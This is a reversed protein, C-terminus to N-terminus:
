FLIRVSSNISSEPFSTYTSSLSYQPSGMNCFHWLGIFGIQKVISSRTSQFCSNGFPTMNKWTRNKSCTKFLFFKLFFSVFFFVESCIFLIIGWRLGLEVVISHQGLYTGERSVDRWWQGSVVFLGFLSLSLLSVNFYYFYNLSGVTLSIAFVARLLPWPSRNVLHFPHRYVLAMTSM